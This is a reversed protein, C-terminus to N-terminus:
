RRHLHRGPRAESNAVAGDVISAHGCLRQCGGV